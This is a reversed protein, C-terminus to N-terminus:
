VNGGCFPSGAFFSLDETYSCGTFIYIDKSVFYPFTSQWACLDQNLASAGEFMHGVDVVSSMDWTSLDLLIPQICMCFM